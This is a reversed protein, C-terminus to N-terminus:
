RSVKDKPWSNTDYFDPEKIPPNKDKKDLPKPLDKLILELDACRYSTVGLERLTAVLRKLYDEHSESM